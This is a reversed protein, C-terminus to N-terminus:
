PRGSEVRNRGDRKAQLLRQDATELMREGTPDDADWAAVGASISVQIAAAGQDAVGAGPAVMSLQTVLERVSEAWRVADEWSVDPLLCCFEDGGYRAVVAHPRELLVRAVQCLVRDGAAHGWQDNVRKFHDVDTMVCCLSTTSHPSPRPSPLLSPLLEFLRRRNLCETLPDHALRELQSTRQRLTAESQELTAIGASLLQQLQAKTWPEPPLEVGVRELLQRLMAHNELILRESDAARAQLTEDPDGSVVVEVLLMSLLVVRPRPHYWIM